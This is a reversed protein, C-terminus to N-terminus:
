SSPPSATASTEESASGPQASHSAIRHAKFALLLAFALLCASAVALGRRRYAREALADESSRVVSAAADRGEKVSAELRKLSFAHLVVRSQIVAERAAGLRVHGEPVEMGEGEAEKLLAEATAIDQLLVGISGKIAVTARDCADGKAHCRACMPGGLMSDDPKAIEHNEHCTTCSPSPIEHKQYRDAFARAHTSTEFLEAQTQHCKGCVDFVSALGSPVGGHGAHCNNCAPAGPDREVLRRHGHVSKEYGELQNTPLPQGSDLKYPKMREPDAHCRTCTEVVHFASVPSDADTVRKIGHAGHCSICTAANQDGLAALKGHKSTLYRAQQDTPVRPNFTRMKEIDSHCRGCMTAVELGRPRGVFGPV